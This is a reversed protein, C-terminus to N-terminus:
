IPLKVTKDYNSSGIELISTMMNTLIDPLAFVVDVLKVFLDNNETFLTEVNFVIEFDYLYPFM